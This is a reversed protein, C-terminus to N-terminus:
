EASLDKQKRAMAAPCYRLYSFIHSLEQRKALVCTGLLLSRKQAVEPIKRVFGLPLPLLARGFPSLAKGFPLFVRGGSFLTQSLSMKKHPVVTNRCLSSFETNELLLPFLIWMSSGPRDIYSNHYIFILFALRLGPSLIPYAFRLSALRSPTPPPFSQNPGTQSPSAPAQSPLSGFILQRGGTKQLKFSFSWNPCTQNNESTKWQTNFALVNYNVINRPKQCPFLVEQLM